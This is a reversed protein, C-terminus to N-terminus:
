SEKDADQKAGKAQDTTMKAPVLRRLSKSGHCAEKKESLALQYAKASTPSEQMSNVSEQALQRYLDTQKAIPGGRRKYAGLCYHRYMRELDPDTKMKKELNVVRKNSSSSISEDAGRGHGHGHGGEEKAEAEKLGDGHGGGEGHGGGGHGHGGHPM